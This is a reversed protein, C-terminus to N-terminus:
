ENEFMITRIKWGEKRGIEEIHLIKYYKENYLIRCKYNIRSDYRITFLVTVSAIEFEKHFEVGGSLVNVTAYTTKLTSYTEKPHGVTADKTTTEVEITIRKDLKGSLM